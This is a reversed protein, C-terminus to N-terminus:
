VKNCGRDRERCEVITCHLKQVSFLGKSCAGFIIISEKYINQASERERREDKDKQAFYYGKKEQILSSFAANDRYKNSM